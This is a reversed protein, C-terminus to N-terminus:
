PLGDQFTGRIYRVFRVDLAQSLFSQRQAGTNARALSSIPLITAARWHGCTRPKLYSPNDSRALTTEEPEWAVKPPRTFQPLSSTAPGAGGMM